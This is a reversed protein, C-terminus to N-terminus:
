ARKVFKGKINGFDSTKVYCPDLGHPAALAILDEEAYLCVEELIHHTAARDDRLRAFRHTVAKSRDRYGEGLESHLGSASLFLLSGPRMRQSLFGLLLSAEAFPLHHIVRQSYLVDFCTPLGTDALNRLDACIFHLQAGSVRASTDRRGPTDAIDVQYSDAGLLAAVFSVSGSGCGLDLFRIERGWALAVAAIADRDLDDWRQSTIDYGHPGANAQPQDGYGNLQARTM